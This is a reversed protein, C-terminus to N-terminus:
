HISYTQTYLTLPELYLVTSIKDLLGLVPKDFVIGQVAFGLCQIRVGFAFLRFSSGFSRWGLGLVLFQLGWAWM